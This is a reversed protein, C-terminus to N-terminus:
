CARRRSAVLMTLGLALCGIVSPEPVIAIRFGFYQNEAAPNSSIRSSNALNADGWSGGRLVRSTGFIGDTWEAANGAQDFTGYYSDALTYAGATTLASGTPLATSNNVAYGGNYGNALFDNYYFNASNANTANGNQSAPLTSFSTPYAWYGGTGSPGGKAVPQYYAAKFWENESPLSYTVNANRNFGVGSTAGNLTYTGAETTSAGQMGIPQGNELWNVYRAADFWSVYTIPRNASGIVSYTYSGASGGRLIGAINVNNAMNANYLSYTDDAAVSNLFRTYQELTVEFQGLRYTDAVAGYGSSSNANGPDGVLVSPLAFQAPANVAMMGWVVLALALRNRFPKM